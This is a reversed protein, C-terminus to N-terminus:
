RRLLRRIFKRNACFGSPRPQDVLDVLNIREFARLALPRHRDDSQDVIGRLDPADKFVEFQPRRQGGLATEAAQEQPNAAAYSSPGSRDGGIDGSSSCRLSAEFAGPRPGSSAQRQHKAYIKRCEASTRTKCSNL